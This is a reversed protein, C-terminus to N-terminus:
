SCRCTMCRCATRSSGRPLPIVCSARRSAASARQRWPRTGSGTASTGTLLRAARRHPSCSGMARGAMLVSMGELIHAPVPVIRHSRKSKPWQRLGQRTMVDIVQVQSRLWDVRHGHLGYIEGPRLGVDTGLEILTRWHSGLGEAAAYLVGAEEHELFEVPRPEIRPLELHDFPNTLVIPPHERMAATYLQTMIHVTDAITAASLVPVDEDGPEVEKGKHRARRTVRLRNVWEQADLRTIASMPWGGWEPECHTRWLSLNKVKTIEEIGRARVIRAHWEAVRIEGIRPDRFDGRALASEQDTGWQKVVSKLRDTKTHRKDDPGRVTAQWLGSPLKRVYM